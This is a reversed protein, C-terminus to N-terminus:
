DAAPRVSLCLAFLENQSSIGLKGYARKRYTAVSSPAVGLHLAIAESSYGGVIRACVERERRSLGAARVGLVERIANLGDAAPVGGPPRLRNHRMVCRCVFDSLGSLNAAERESFPPLGATRYFNVYHGSDDLVAVKGGLAPEDFFAARYGTDAIDDRALVAPRPAPGPPAARLRALLPDVRDFRGAVYRHGLAEAVPGSRNWAYPCRSGGADFAFVMIQHVDAAERLLGALADDFGPEGLVEVLRGARALLQGDLASSGSAM